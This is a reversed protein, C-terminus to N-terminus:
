ENKKIRLNKLQTRIKNNIKRIFLATGLNYEIFPPYITGWETYVMIHVHPDVQDPDNESRYVIFKCELTTYKGHKNVPFRYVYGEHNYMYRFGLKTVDSVQRCPLIWDKRLLKNWIM